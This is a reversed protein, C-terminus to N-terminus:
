NHRSNNSNAGHSRPKTSSQNLAVMQQPFAAAPARGSPLPVHPTQVKKFRGGSNHMGGVAARAYRGGNGEAHGAVVRWQQHPHSPQPQLQPLPQCAPKAAPRVAHATAEHYTPPPQPPRDQHHRKHQQQQWRERKAARAAKRGERATTARVAADAAGRFDFLSVVGSESGTVIRQDVMDVCYLAGSHPNHLARCTASLARVSASAASGSGRPQLAASQQQRALLQTETNILVVSGDAAASVLWPDEYSLSHVTGSHHWMFCSPDRMRLDHAMVLGDGAGACMAIVCLLNECDCACGCM